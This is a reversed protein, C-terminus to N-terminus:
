NSASESVTMRPAYRIFLFGHATDLGIFEESISTMLAQRGPSVLTTGNPYRLNNTQQPM